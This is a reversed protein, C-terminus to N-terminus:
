IEQEVLPCCRSSWWEGAGGSPLLSFDVVRRSWWLTAALFWPKGGAGGSPLLSFDVVRRSWWLTAALFWPESLAGGSM